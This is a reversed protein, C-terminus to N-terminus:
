RQEETDLAAPKKKTVWRRYSCNYGHTLEGGCDCGPVKDETDLASHGSDCHKTDLDTLPTLGHPARDCSCYCRVHEEYRSLRARLRDGEQSLRILDDGRTNYADRWSKGAETLSHITDAAERALAKPMKLYGMNPEENWEALVDRLRQELENM